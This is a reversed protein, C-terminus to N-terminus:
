YDALTAGIGSFFGNVACVGATEMLHIGIQGGGCWIAALTLALAALLSLSTLVYLATATKNMSGSYCIFM